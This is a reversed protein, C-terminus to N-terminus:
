GFTAAFCARYIQALETLPAQSSGFCVAEGGFKGVATLTVGAHGAATMLADAMDFNCAILYRAQDEGFLTPTDEAEITIGTGAAEAM